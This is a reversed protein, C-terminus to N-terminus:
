PGLEPIPIRYNQQILQNIQDVRNADLFITKPTQKFEFKHFGKLPKQLASKVDALKGVPQGNVQLLELDSLNEYGITEPTPIIGSILVIKERGNEGNLYDQNQSYFMLDVPATDVWDNGYEQLYPVSLEVLILGGVVLYDTRQDFSYPPVLYEDPRRHDLTITTEIIQRDRYIELPVADGVFYQARILHILSTQGYVPHDYRGTNSVNNGGMSVIVDGTKIGAQDAPSGKLVKQVYIGTLSEPLGIFRRLQADVIPGYSFGATPFGQYEGQGADELFHSIVPLSVAEISRDNGSQRLLLGALRRGKIVPLSLNNYRFQLTNDLRYTLFYHGPLYASLDIATVQGGGPVIDGNPKVQVVVLQDGVAVADAPKLPQYGSLFTSDAPEVLALNSEYDVVVVRAPQKVQSDITELEIYRHDAVLAAQVLVRGGEVVVGIATRTVPRRQQWPRHFIHGQSTATVRILSPAMSQIAANDSSATQYQLGTTCATLMLGLATTLAAGILFRTTMRM